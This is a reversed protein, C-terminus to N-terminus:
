PRPIRSPRPPGPKEAQKLATPIPTVPLAPGTPMGPVALPIPPPPTPRAVLLPLEVPTFWLLAAILKLYALRWVWCKLRPSLRPLARCMIWALALAAGGQWCARGIVEAWPVAVRNLEVVWGSMADGGEAPRRPRRGAEPTARGR